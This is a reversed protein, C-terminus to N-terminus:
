EYRELEWAGAAIMAEMVAWDTRSDINHSREEPMVFPLTGEPLFRRERMFAEVSILYFAGNLRYPQPLSQRPGEFGEGMYAVIRGGEIRKLKEPRPEDHAVLSVSAEADSAEVAACMAELDTLRRFPSTAQLILLHGVSIANEALVHEVVAATTAADDALHAPRLSPAAVGQRTAIAHMEPDDTTVLTRDIRSSARAFKIARDLLSDGGAVPRINKGPVGKSGGRVPIIATLPEGRLM